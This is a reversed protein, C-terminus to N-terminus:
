FVGKGRRIRNGGNLGRAARNLLDRSLRRMRGTSHVSADATPQLLVKCGKKAFYAEGEPSLRVNGM